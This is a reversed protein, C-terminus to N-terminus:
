LERSARARIPMMEPIESATVDIALAEWFTPIPSVILWGRGGLTKASYRIKRFVDHISAEHLRGDLPERPYVYLLCLFHGQM